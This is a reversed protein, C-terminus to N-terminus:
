RCSARGIEKEIIDIAKETYILESRTKKLRQSNIFPQIDDYVAEPFTASLRQHQFMSVTKMELGFRAINGELKEKLKAFPDEEDSIPIINKVYSADEAIEKDLAPVFLINENSRNDIILAMFREHPDSNFGTYYFVNAPTTIMAVNIKQQHLTEILTSLRENYNITM